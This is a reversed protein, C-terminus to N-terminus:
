DTGPSIYRTLKEIVMEVEFVSPEPVPSQQIYKHKGLMLLEMYM